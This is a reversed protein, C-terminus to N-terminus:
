PLHTVHERKFQFSLVVLRSDNHWEYLKDHKKQGGGEGTVFDCKILGGGESAHCVKHVAGSIM